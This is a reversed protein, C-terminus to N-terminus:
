AKVELNGHLDMSMEGDLKDKFKDQMGEVAALQEEFKQKIENDEVRDVYEINKFRDAGKMDVYLEDLKKLVKM